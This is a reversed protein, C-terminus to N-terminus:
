AAQAPPEDAPDADDANHGTVADYLRARLAEELDGWFADVTAPTLQLSADRYQAGLSGVPEALRGAMAEIERFHFALSVYEGRKKALEFEVMDAQANALRAKAADPSDTRPGFKALAEAVATDIKSRLYKERSEPFLYERQGGKGLRAEVKGEDALNALQRVTLGLIFSAVKPPQWGTYDKSTVSVASM